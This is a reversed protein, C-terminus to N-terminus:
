RPTGSGSMPSSSNGRKAALPENPVSTTTNNVMPMTAADKLLASEARVARVVDKQTSMQPRGLSSRKRLCVWRPMAATNASKMRRKRATFEVEISSAMYM